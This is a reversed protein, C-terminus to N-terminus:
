RAAAAMSCFFQKLTVRNDLMVMQVAGDTLALGSASDRIALKNGNVAGSVVPRDLTGTRHVDFALNGALQLTSSILPALKDLKEVDGAANINLPASPSIAKDHWDIQTDGDIKVTGFRDSM